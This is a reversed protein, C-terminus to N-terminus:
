EVMKWDIDYGITVKTHVIIGYQRASSSYNLTQSSLIFSNPVTIIDNKPTRIRTVFPTNEVVDGETDQLKIRDGVKFPRMYTTVLGAMLNGIVTTSGLSIVLGIFVSVGQFIESNSSPLLPWIMILMFSYALFRLIYYTPFAWDPYFGSIKLKETAIENAM